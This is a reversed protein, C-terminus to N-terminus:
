PCCSYISNTIGISDIYWGPNGNSVDSGLMWRLQNTKGLSNPPMDVVTTIFGGSNGSWAMRGALPNSYHSNIRGIYGGQVFAGGANIIDQWGTNAINIELVGGDYAVPGPGAEMVYYHRFTLQATGTSLTVNKASLVSVGGGADDAVFAANPATDNTTTSTVWAVQAGQATSGWGSPLAPPTAADFNELLVPYSASLAGLRFSFPRVGFDNTGDTLQLLVTDVSACAGTAMFSFNTFVPTGNTNLVGYINSITIPTIGGNTLLTAILNTTNATGINKLGISVTVTEGPDIANNTPSCSEATITFSNSVILPSNTNPTTITLPGALTRILNTGIPSGWGTCLDYGVRAYFNTTNGYWVNAGATVDHFNTSYAHGIGKGINYIASNICGIYNSGNAIRQQNVLAIFAAWLPASLSTGGHQAGTGNGSIIWAGDAILAVDPLNHHTTSGGNLTMSIGQQWPPILANTSIGGGTLTWVTESTWVHQASTNLYTGGVVTVNTYYGPFPAGTGATYSFNDGSSTFFSQGQSAMQAFVSTANPYSPAGNYIIWSCSLQKALNDDAMRQLVHLWGTLTPTAPNGEYVYITALNPAMAAAVEIDLAVEVEAGSVPHGDYSDLLINVVNPTPIGALAAYSAIDASYYGSFEVLGLSQGYGTLATGNAYASRFDNGLYYGSPGSGSYTPTYETQNATHQYSDYNELGNIEIMLVPCDSTPEKDPAYFERNEKPHRYRLMKVSLAKGVDSSAGSIGLLTRSKHRVTITFGNARAWAEIATYDNTTPGFRETFQAPTIWNQYNTSAPNYLDALLRDLEAPNRMPLSISLNLRNTAELAGISKLSSVAVPVHRGKIKQRGAAGAPLALLLALILIRCANM